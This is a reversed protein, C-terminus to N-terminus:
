SNAFVMGNLFWPKSMDLSKKGTQHIIIFLSVILMTLVAEPIKELMKITRSQIIHGVTDGM